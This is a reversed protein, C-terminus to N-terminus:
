FGAPLRATSRIGRPGWELAMDRTLSDIAGKATRRVPGAHQDRDAVDAVLPLVSGGLQDLRSVADRLAAADVDNLAVRAGAELMRVATAFGIGRAAGTILVNRADLRFPNLLHELPEEM